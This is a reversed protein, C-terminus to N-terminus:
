LGRELQQTVEATSPAGGGHRQAMRLVLRASGIRLEDGDRLPCEGEVRAGAVYTGNSSAIDRVIWSAGRRLIEAHRRSVTTDDDIVVDNDADRGIRLRPSALLVVERGSPTVVEIRAVSDLQGDSRSAADWVLAPAQVLIDRELHRLAPSLDIGLDDRLHRRLRDCAALAEAQRGCRYLALMLHAHLGERLPHEGALGELEAVLAAHRGLALDAEVRAEVAAVRAEDLRRAEALAFPM